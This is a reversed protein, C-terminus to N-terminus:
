SSGQVVSEQECVGTQGAGRVGYQQQKNNQLVVSLVGTGGVVIDHRRVFLDRGLGLSAIHDKTMVRAM